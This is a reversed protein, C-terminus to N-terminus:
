TVGATVCLKVSFHSPHHVMTVDYCATIWRLLLLAEIHFEQPSAFRSLNEPCQVEASSSSSGRLRIVGDEERRVRYTM